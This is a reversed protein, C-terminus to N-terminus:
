DAAEKCAGTRKSMCCVASANEKGSPEDAGHCVSIGAYSLSSVVFKKWDVPSLGGDEPPFDKARV